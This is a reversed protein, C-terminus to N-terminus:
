FPIGADTLLKRLREIETKQNANEVILTELRQLIDNSIKGEMENTTGEDNVIYEEFFNYDLLESIAALKGTDIYSRRLIKSVEPQYKGLRAAFETQTIKLEKLRRNISDGIHVLGIQTEEGDFTKGAVFERFFNHRLRLTIVELQLTNMTKKKLLRVANSTPMGLLQAFKAQTINHTRIWKDIAEGIHIDTLKVESM